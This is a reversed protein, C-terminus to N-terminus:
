PIPDTRSSSPAEFLKTIKIIKGSTDIEIRVRDGKAVQEQKLIRSDSLALAWTQGDITQFTLTRQAQDIGVIAGTYTTAAESTLTLVVALATWLLTITALEIWNKKM